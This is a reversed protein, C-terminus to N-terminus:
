VARGVDRQMRQSLERYQLGRLRRVRGPLRLRILPWCASRVCASSAVRPPGATLACAWGAGAVPLWEGPERVRLWAPVTRVRVVGRRSFMKQM